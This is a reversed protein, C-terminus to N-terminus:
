SVEAACAETRTRRALSAVSVATCALMGCFPARVLMRAFKPLRPLGTCAFRPLM